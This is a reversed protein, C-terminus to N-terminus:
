AFPDQWRAESQRSLISPSSPEDTNNLEPDSPHRFKGLQYMKLASAEEGRVHHQKAMLLYTLGESKADEKQEIRRELADLRRRVNESLAEPAQDHTNDNLARAALAEEVKREVMEEIEAKSVQAAPPEAREREHGTQRTTKAPRSLM